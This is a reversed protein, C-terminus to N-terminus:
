LSFCLYHKRAHSRHSISGVGHLALYQLFHDWGRRGFLTPIKKVMEAPYGIEALLGQNIQGMISQIFTVFVTGRYNREFILKLQDYPIGYADLDIIDFKGLDLADLYARNDGPLHFGVNDRVDIPLTMIRRGSLKRVAKWIKGTGGYCDLVRLGDKDPLHALRLAVKDSLYSNDTLKTQAM